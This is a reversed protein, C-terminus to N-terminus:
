PCFEGYIRDIEEFEAQLKNQIQAEIYEQKVRTIFRIDLFLHAVTNLLSGIDLNKPNSTISANIITSASAISNSILLIKRTRVEYIDKPVGEDRFLGHTLGIIMDILATIAFSVGVVKADRSFCLADYHEKYLKSAFQENIASLVPVPLGAKTFEDSKLHQAQAFIAAPLNLRDAEIIERSEQVMTVLPVSGPLIIMPNRQIRRSQFDNTTIIDTLINMTGFLWGLIPDHGLTYLRHEGGHLQIGAAPSGRTIDYPPTQYLINIWYGTKGNTKALKKDRFTDNADRHTREISKDNHNLRKSPDFSDGYGVKGAVYLFLLAKTVQLAIAIALFPLDTKNILSTQRAFEKNIADLERFSDNIESESMIDELVVPETCHENAQRVIEDWSELEPRHELRREQRQDAIKKALTKVDAQKGLSKLLELSSDIAADATQRTAAMDPDNKQSLSRDQNMKLVRNLDKEQESYQFRSM